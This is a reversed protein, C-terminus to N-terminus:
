FDQGIIGRRLILKQILDVYNMQSILVYKSGLVDDVVINCQFQRRKRMQNKKIKLHELTHFMVKSIIGM